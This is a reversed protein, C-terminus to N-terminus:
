ILKLSPLCVQHRRPLKKPRTESISLDSGQYRLSSNTSKLSLVVRHLLSIPLVKEMEQIMTMLKSNRFLQDALNLDITRKHSLFCRGKQRKLRVAIEAEKVM